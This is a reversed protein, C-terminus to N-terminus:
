SPQSQDEHKNVRLGTEGRREPVWSASGRPDGKTCNLFTKLTGGDAGAGQGKRGTLASSRGSRREREASGSIQEPDPDAWSRGPYVVRAGREGGM